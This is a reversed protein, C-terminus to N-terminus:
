FAPVLVLGLTPHPASNRMRENLDAWCRRIIFPLVSLTSGQLGCISGVMWLGQLVSPPLYPPEAPLNLHSM